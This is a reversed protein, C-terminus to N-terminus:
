MPRHTFVSTTGPQAHASKASTITSETFMIETFHNPSISNQAASMLTTASTVKRTMPTTTSTQPICRVAYAGGPAGAGATGSHSVPAAMTECVSPPQNGCPNKGSKTTSELTTKAYEATSSTPM